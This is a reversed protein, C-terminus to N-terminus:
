ENFKGERRTRSTNKEHNGLALGRRGTIGGVNGKPLDGVKREEGSAAFYRSGKHSETLVKFNVEEQQVQYQLQSRGGKPRKRNKRRGADALKSIKGNGRDRKEKRTKKKKKEREKQKLQGLKIKGEQL